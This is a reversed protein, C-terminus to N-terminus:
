YLIIYRAENLRKYHDCGLQLHMDCSKGYYEKALKKNQRVGKSEEYLMGVRICAEVNDGYCAKEYYEVAKFYDKKVGKGQYYM